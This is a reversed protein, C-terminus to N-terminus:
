KTRNHSHIYNAWTNFELQQSNECTKTGMPELESKDCERLEILILKTFLALLSGFVITLIIGFIIYQATM